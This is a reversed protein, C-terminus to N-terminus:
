HSRLWRINTGEIGAELLGKEGVEGHDFLNMSHTPIYIDGDIDWPIFNNLKVAGLLSGSDLEYHFGLRFHIVNITFCCVIVRFLDLDTQRM